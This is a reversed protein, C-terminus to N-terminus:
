LATEIRGLANGLQTAGTNPRLNAAIRLPARNCKLPTELKIIRRRWPGREKKGRTRNLYDVGRDIAKNVADQENPSLPV